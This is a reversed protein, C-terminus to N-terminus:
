LAIDHEKLVKGHLEMIISKMNEKSTSFNESAEEIVAELEAKEGMQAASLASVIKSPNVGYLKQAFDAIDEVNRNQLASYDRINKAVKLGQEASLNYKDSFYNATKQVVLEEKDAIEGVLDLEKTVTGNDNYYYWGCEDYMYFGWADYVPYCSYTRYPTYPEYILRCSSFAGVLSLLALFKALKTSM